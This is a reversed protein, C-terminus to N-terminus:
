CCKLQYFMRCIDVFYKFLVTCIGYVALRLSPIKKWHTASLCWYTLFLATFMLCIVTDRM